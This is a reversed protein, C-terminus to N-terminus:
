WRKRNFIVETRITPVWVAEIDFDLYKRCHDISAQLAVHTHMKEDFDGVLGLRIRKLM